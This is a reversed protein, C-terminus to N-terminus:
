HPGLWKRMITHFLRTLLFKIHTYIIFRKFTMSIPIIKFKPIYSQIMPM